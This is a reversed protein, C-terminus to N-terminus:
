GSMGDQVGRMDAFVHEGNAEDCKASPNSYGGTTCAPWSIAVRACTCRRTRFGGYSNM